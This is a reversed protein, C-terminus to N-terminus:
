NKILKSSYNFSPTKINLFYLGKAIDKMDISLQNNGPTIRYNKEFITKGYINFLVININDSKETNILVNFVESFPNPFLNINDSVKIANLGVNSVHISITISDIGCNDFTILKVAYDSNSTYTHQPNQETSTEGDGFDWRFVSGGKSTNTFNYIGGSVNNYTFDADIVFLPKLIVNQIVTNGNSVSINDITKSQYGSSSFTLNYVGSYIPRHYNGVTFASYVESSDFDHGSIFIKARIGQGTCSDTVIGRIGKLSQEIYNFLSRRCANWLSPLSSASPSQESSIEITTERCHKFYNMYDQRGGLVQYWEFGNSIGSPDVDTFFNPPGYQQATDAFQNSVYQWWNDDATLTPKSDWPYNVVEVGEHFNASMVFNMTDAFSMMAQTEPQWVEDDPHEGGVPDPFNRNLDVGNANGRTAGYISNGGSAEFTGDPNALPNIWIETNDILDTIRSNTGYSSLLTDILHLLHVYGSTEDGHITSIYLFQPENEHTNVNKSIKVFLLKRGSSLTKINYTKCLNPYASSFQYMMSEYASYTPYANWSNIQKSNVVNIMKPNKNREGPHILIQYDYNHLLFLKFEKKNAYAFVEKNKAVKDISILKTLMGIENKSSIKFKFYVEKKKGFISDALNNNTKQSFSINFLIASLLAILVFIKSKM